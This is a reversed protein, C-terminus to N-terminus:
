YDDTSGSFLSNHNKLTEKRHRWRFTHIIEELATSAVADSYQISDVTELMLETIYNPLKVHFLGNKLM